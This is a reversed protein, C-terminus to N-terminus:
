KTSRGRRAPNTRPRISRLKQAVMELPERIFRDLLAVPEPLAEHFARPDRPDLPSPPVLLKRLLWNPKEDVNRAHQRLRHKKATALTDLRAVLDPIPGIIPEAEALSLGCHEAILNVRAARISPLPEPSEWAIGLETDFGMSRNSTNASSVLLFRDDVALVKAHIFVAVEHEQDSAATYYVGLRHGCKEAVEGLRKLIRAQHVGISVREKLGSSCQPLVFVLELPGGPRLMRKELAEGLDNSSLYQNEIYIVREAAEIARIHLEYIESVAACAPEHLPPCTRALAVHPAEVTFSPEIEIHERPPEPLSLEKGTAVNWRECFWERLVDVAEGRVYANVDHYPHYHSFRNKRLPEDLHHERRDWRSNCIDIGGLIAISRDVVVLKQHHSAGAPHSNDSHYHIRKHGRLHMLTAQLPVREFAFVASADWALLHVELDPNRECLDRLFPLFQVPHKAGVADDGRLLAVGNEFQWGTIMISRKARSCADYIAKYIDRGDVLVGSDSGEHVSGCSLGPILIQM